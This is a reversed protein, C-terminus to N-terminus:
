AGAQAGALRRLEIARPDSRVRSHESGGGALGDAATAGLGPVTRFAAREADSAHPQRRGVGFAERECRHSLAFPRDFLVLWYATLEALQDRLRLLAANEEVDVAEPVRELLGHEVGRLDGVTGSEM